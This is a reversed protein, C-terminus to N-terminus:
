ETWNYLFSLVVIMHESARGVELCHPSLWWKWAHKQTQTHIFQKIVDVSNPLDFVRQPLSEIGKSSDPRPPKVGLAQEITAEFKAAQATELVVM